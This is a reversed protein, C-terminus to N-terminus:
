KKNIVTKIISWVEKPDNKYKSILDNYYKKEAAKLLKKWVTVITKIFQRM